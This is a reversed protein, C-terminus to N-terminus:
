LFLETILGQKTSTSCLIECVDAIDHLQPRSNGCERKAGVTGPVRQVPLFTSRYFACVSLTMGYCAHVRCCM